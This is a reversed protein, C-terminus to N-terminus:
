KSYKDAKITHLQTLNFRNQDKASLQEKELKLKEKDM